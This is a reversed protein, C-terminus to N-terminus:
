FVAADMLCDKGGRWGYFFNKDKAKWSWYVEWRENKSEFFAKANEMREGELMGAKYLSYERATWMAVRAVDDICKPYPFFELAEMKTSRAIGDYWWKNAESKDISFGYLKSYSAIVQGFLSKMARDIGGDWVGIVDTYHEISDRHLNWEIERAAGNKAVEVKRHVNKIMEIKEQKTM